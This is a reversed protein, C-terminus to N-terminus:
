RCAVESDLESRAQKISDRKLYAKVVLGVALTGKSLETPFAATSM